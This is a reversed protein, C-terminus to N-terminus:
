IVIESLSHSAAYASVDEVRLSNAFASFCEKMSGHPSPAAPLFKVDRGPPVLLFSNDEFNGHALTTLTVYMAVADTTVHAVMDGNEKTVATVVVNSKALMMKEPTAFPIVNSSAVSGDSSTVISELIHTSGNLAAVEDSHFWQLVGAGAPLSLDRKILESVKGDVFATSRLTLTGKFPKPADNRIYCEGGTGCTSMVDAYISKAYWYQLPKWRGGIVQGPMNPNGYEISGWGGTPWIENYQWVIIGFTNASLRTEINQKIEIAQAIMCQYLGKKFPIEGTANFDQGKKGFYM